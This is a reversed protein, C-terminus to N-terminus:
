AFAALPKLRVKTGRVRVDYEQGRSLVELTGIRENLRDLEGKDVFFNTKASTDHHFHMPVSISSRLFSALKQGSRADGFPWVPFFVVDAEIAEIPELLVSDGMFFVIIDDKKFTFVFCVGESAAFVECAIDGLDLMEGAEVPRSRLHELREDAKLSNIVQEPGYVITGCDAVAEITDPHFHDWHEHSVFIARAPAELPPIESM